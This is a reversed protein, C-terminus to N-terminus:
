NVQVSPGHEHNMDILSELALELVSMQHEKPIQGTM